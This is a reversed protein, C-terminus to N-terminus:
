AKAQLDLPLIAVSADRNRRIKDQYMAQGALSLLLDLDDGDQPFTASGVSLGM